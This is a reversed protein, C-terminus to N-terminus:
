RGPRGRKKSAMRGAKEYIAMLRSYAAKESYERKVKERGAEGMKRCLEPREWLYRIKEAMEGANGPQFLLGTVGDDVIEPICGIRSVVVPKGHAMARAVANPFGEFWTGPFVFVRTKRYFSELKEGSLFGEFRINKPANRIVDGNMTVIGAAAFDYGPLLGAAEIFCSVGKEASVRGIFAATDGTEWDAATRDADTVFNPMVELREPPIGGEVFRKKQFESLVIFVDVGKQIAGSVRATAHRIAYSASKFYDGACNNLLCALESGELCRECVQGRTFHLGNPCFLRYNPCRMVVPVGNKRCPGFISPSLFPYINQVHVLDISNRSLLHAIDRKAGTSYIGSFFAGIKKTASGGIGVSSRRLRTVTHGNAALLGSISRVAKEEGSFVSYDNHALLIHM